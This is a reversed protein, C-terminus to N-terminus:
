RTSASRSNRKLSNWIEISRWGMMWGDILRCKPLLQFKRFVNKDVVLDLQNSKKKETYNM